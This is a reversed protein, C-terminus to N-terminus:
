AFKLKPYPELGRKFEDLDTVVNEGEEQETILTLKLDSEQASESPNANGLLQICLVRLDSSHIKSEYFSVVDEKMISELILAEKERKDFMLWNYKVQSSNSYVESQLDNFPTKKLQIQSEKIKNFNEESLDNLIKRADIKMFNQIRTSILKSSFKDEQYKVYINFTLHDRATSSRIGVTYGLQEKTRLIDFIPEELITILLQLTCHKLMTRPGLDYSDCISSNKEDTTFSKVKVTTRGVPTKLYVREIVSFDSVPEPNINGIVTNTISLADDRSLNGQVIIRINLERLAKETYKQMHEFTVKELEKFEEYDHSYTKVQLFHSLTFLFNGQKLISIYNEKMNKKYVNFVSEDLLENFKKLMKTFKDIVIELKENYGSFLLIMRNDSYQLFFDYGAETAASLEEDIFRNMLKVYIKSLIM